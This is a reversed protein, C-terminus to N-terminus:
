GHDYATLKRGFLDVLISRGQPPPDNQGSQAQPLKASTQPGVVGDVTLNNLFQFEMVRGTTLADFKSNIVLRPLRTLEVLNLATQIQAIAPGSDGFKQEQM